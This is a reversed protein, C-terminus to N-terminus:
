YKYFGVTYAVENILNPLEAGAPARFKEEVLTKDLAETLTNAFSWFAPFKKELYTAIFRDPLDAHTLSHIYAYLLLESGSIRKLRFFHAFEVPSNPNLESFLLTVHTIYKSLTHLCKLSQKSEHLLTQNKKKALMVKEHLASIAVQDDDDDSEDDVEAAATFFGGKSGLGIIKLQEVATAHFKLPQNYMMPFPLYRLFLKRTYLEYNRSNVYLNYQNVYQLTTSLYTILLLDVLQEHPSLRPIFRTDTSYAEAIHNVIHSYGEFKAVSQGKRELLLPLRHSNALNTNCSPVIKFRANQPALHLCLLWAAARSEPDIVAIDTGSGWVHLEYYPEAM